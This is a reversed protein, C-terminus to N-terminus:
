TKVNNKATRGGGVGGDAEIRFGDLPVYVFYNEGPNALCYGTSALEGHPATTTLNMRNAYALTHGMARRCSEFLPRSSSWRTRGSRDTFYRPNAANVCLPGAAPRRPTVEGTTDAGLAVMNMPEDWWSLNATATLGTVGIWVLRTRV